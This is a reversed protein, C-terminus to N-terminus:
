RPLSQREIQWHRNREEGDRGGKEQQVTFLVVLFLDEEEKNGLDTTKGYFCASSIIEFRVTTKREKKLEGKGEGWRSSYARTSLSESLKWARGSPSRLVAEQVAM